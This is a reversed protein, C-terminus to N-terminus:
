YGGVREDNHVDSQNAELTRVLARLRDVEDCLKFVVDVVYARGLLERFYSRLAKTDLAESDM